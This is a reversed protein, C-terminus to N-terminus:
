REKQVQQFDAKMTVVSTGAQILALTPNLVASTLSPATIRATAGANQPNGPTGVLSQPIYGVLATDVYALVDGNRNIYFALDVSANAGLSYTGVPIAVTTIASANASNIALVGAASLTFYVGDTVTGPTATTQILGFVGTIGATAWASMQLRAEWFVKKPQSNITYSAVSHQLSIVGATSGTTFQAIGGDGAVGAIAAGTGSLTPNYSAALYPDFDDFFSHYFALNDAGCEALPQWPQDISVGAIFAAPIPSATAAM